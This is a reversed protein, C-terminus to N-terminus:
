GLIGHSFLILNHDTRRHASNLARAPQVIHSKNRLTNKLQAEPAKNFSVTDSTNDVLPALFHSQM